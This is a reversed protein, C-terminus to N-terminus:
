TNIGSLEEETLVNNSISQQRLESYFIAISTQMYPALWLYGIGLTLVCLLAWGLFSFSLCFLKSKYGDMMKMSIKLANKVGIRPNDAIIYFSMSYSLGKIIGPIFFLLSWLLVWLTSWLYIGLTVAYEKFGDFLTELRPNDGRILRLFYLIMGIIMPGGILLAGVVTYSAAGIILSYLLCIALPLGWKGKLQMRANSRIESNTMM